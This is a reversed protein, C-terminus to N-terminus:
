HLRMTGPVLGRRVQTAVWLAASASASGALDGGILAEVRGHLALVVLEDVLIAARAVM